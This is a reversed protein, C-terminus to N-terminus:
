DTLDALKSSICKKFEQTLKDFDIRGEVILKLIDKPFHISPTSNNDLRWTFIHRGDKGIIKKNSTLLTVKNSLRKKLEREIRNAGYKGNRIEEAMDVLLSVNKESKRALRSLEYATRSSVKRFDEIANFLAEPIKKYSLLRSVQQKSICLIGTLDKQTILGIEIKDAYSMGKAFESIDSRKENEVAQILVATKDDIEEIIAKLKLGAIEAAHWRREGVILEYKKLNEKSPRLICPQQQGISKFTEALGNIDGLENEPRDKYKWRIVDKVDVEVITKDDLSSKKTNSQHNIPKVVSDTRAPQLYDKVSRSKEDAALLRDLPDAWKKAM